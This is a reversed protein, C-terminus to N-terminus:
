HALTTPEYTDNHKLADREERMAQKWKKADDRSLAQRVTLPDAKDLHSASTILAFSTFASYAEIRKREASNLTMNVMAEQNKSKRAARTRTAIAENSNLDTAPNEPYKM